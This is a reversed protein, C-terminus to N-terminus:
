NVLVGGSIISFNGGHVQVTGIVRLDGDDIQMGGTTIEIDGQGVTVGGAVVVGGLLDVGDEVTLGTDGIFMGGEIVAGGVTTM